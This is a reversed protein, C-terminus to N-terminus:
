RRFLIGLGAAIAYLRHSAPAAWLKRIRLAPIASPAASWSRGGDDTRYLHGYEVAYATSSATPYLVSTFTDAPLHAAIKWTTGDNNSVYLGTRTAALLASNKDAPLAIANIDALPLSSNMPTWHEGCDDSAFLGLSTKAILRMGPAPASYLATVDAAAPLGATEWREGMDASKLFGRDTAVFFITGSGTAISYIGDIASPHLYVTKIIPRAARRTRRSRATHARHGRPEHRPQEKVVVRVPLPKWLTGGDISKYLGRPSAAILDRSPGAAGAVSDLHVGFLGHVNSLQTWSDGGNASIFIGTTEGEDPEIAVLESGSATLSAIRRDAFGNNIPMMTEGRDTSKALGEYELALYMAHAQSHDLAIANVQTSNLTRWTKGGNTSKFLGATTGAYITESDFPDQRIAHTRRSTNPIGMLKHWQDGRSDTAYIGSCASAFVRSPLIPNIYLSFVDSDNEIGTRISEWTKGGDTTRWPLHPTGAYVIRPDVPDVAVATIGNMEYNQPDSIRTWTKGSDKSIQVGRLTGAVIETPDSASLALARVGTDSLDKNPAWTKGGDRSEFLAGDEVALMGVLYHNSDKPDILISTVEGFGRQPLNLIQWSQGANESKFLLSQMGGALLISPNNPDIAIALATGGFPGAINWDNAPASVPAAAAGIGALAVALASLLRYPRIM